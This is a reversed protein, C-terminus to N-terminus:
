VQVHMRVQKYYSVFEDTENERVIKLMKQENLSSDGRADLFALAVYQPSQAHCYWFNDSLCECM